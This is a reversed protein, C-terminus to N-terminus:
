KRRLTPELNRAVDARRDLSVSIKSWCLRKLARVPRNTRRGRRHSRMEDPFIGPTNLTVYGRVRRPWAANM